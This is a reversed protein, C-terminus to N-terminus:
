KARCGPARTRSGSRSRRDCNQGTNRPPNRARITRRSARLVAAPRESLPSGAVTVLADREKTEFWTLASESVRGQDALQVQKQFYRRLAARTQAGAVGDIEGQYYGEKQLRQQVQKLREASLSGLETGAGAPDGSVSAPAPSSGDSAMNQREAPRADSGRVPQKEAPRATSGSTMQREASPQGPAGRAADKQATKAGNTGTAGNWELGLADRTKADLAGVTLGQQTQFNRLAAETKAGAVGDINGQYLGRTALERQLEKVQEQSLASIGSTQRAAPDSKADMEEGSARASKDGEAHSVSSFAIAAVLASGTLLRKTAHSIETRQM